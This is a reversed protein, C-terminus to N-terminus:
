PVTVDAVGTQAVVFAGFSTIRIAQVRVHYTHGSAFGDLSAGTTGQGAIAVAGDRDGVYSPNTSTESWVAKYTTFCTGPGGFATWGLSM